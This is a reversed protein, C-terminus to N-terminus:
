MVNFLWTGFLSNLVGSISTGPQMETKSFDNCFRSAVLKHNQLAPQYFAWIQYEGGWLEIEVRLDKPLLQRMEFNGNILRDSYNKKRTPSLEWSRTLRLKIEGIWWNRFFSWTVRNLVNPSDFSYLIHRLKTSSENKIWWQTMLNEFTPIKRWM